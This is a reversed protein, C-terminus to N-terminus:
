PDTRKLHIIDRHFRYIGVNKDRESFDLICKRFTDESCPDVLRDIMEQARMNRWQSLFEIRGERVKAALHEPLDAFFFFPASSSFEQGQFLMPTGTGLITLATVTRYLNP